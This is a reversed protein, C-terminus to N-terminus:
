RLQVYMVITLFVKKMACGHKEAYNEELHLRLSLLQLLINRYCIATEDTLEDLCRRPKKKAANSEGDISRKAHPLSLQSAPRADIPRTKAPVTIVAKIRATPWLIYLEKSKCIHEQWDKFSISRKSINAEKYSKLRKLMELERFTTPYSQKPEETALLNHLEFDMPVGLAPIRCRTHPDGDYIHLWSQSPHVYYKVFQAKCISEDERSNYFKNKLVVAKAGQDFLHQKKRESGLLKTTLILLPVVDEQIYQLQKQSLSSPWVEPLGQKTLNYRASIHYVDKLSLSNPSTVRKNINDPHLWIKCQELGFMRFIWERIDFDYVTDLSLTEKLLKTDLCRQNCAIKIININTFVKRLKLALKDKAAQKTINNKQADQLLSKVNIYVFRVREEEIYFALQIIALQQTYTDYETDFAVISTPMREDLKMSLSEMHSMKTAFFCNDPKPMPNFERKAIKRAGDRNATAKVANTVRGNRKYKSVKVLSSSEKTTNVLTLSQSPTASSNQMRHEVFSASTEDNSMGFKIRFRDNIMGLIKDLFVEEGPTCLLQKTMYLMQKLAPHSGATAQRRVIRSLSSRTTAVRNTGTPSCTLNYNQYTEQTYIEHIKSEIIATIINDIEKADRTEFM